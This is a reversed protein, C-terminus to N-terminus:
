WTDRHIKNEEFREKPERKRKAHGVAVISVPEVHEPLKLAKRVHPYWNGDLLIGCWCGGLGLEEIRLLMNETVAACDAILLEKIPQKDRDGIVAIALSSQELMRAFVCTSSLEHLIDRNKIVILEYPRLNKASPACFAADLIRYLEEETVMEETFSRVSTRTEIVSM